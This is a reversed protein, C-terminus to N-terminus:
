RETNTRRTISTGAISTSPRIRDHGSSAAETVHGVILGVLEDVSHRETDLVLDPDEPPHYISNYGVLTDIEGNIAKKYLGKPDREACTAISCSVYGIALNAVTGRIHDRADQGATLASVVVHLGAETAKNALHALAAVVRLRDDAGFALDPGLLNRVEDGDFGIVHMGIKRLDAVARLALTSKGASTPGMLWLVTGRRLPEDVTRASGRFKGVHHHEVNMPRM